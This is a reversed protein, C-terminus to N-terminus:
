ASRTMCLVVRCLWQRREEVGTLASSSKSPAHISVSVDLVMIPVFFPRAKQLLVPFDCHRTGESVCKWTLTIVCFLGACRLAQMEKRSLICGKWYVNDVGMNWEHETKVKELVELERRCRPM